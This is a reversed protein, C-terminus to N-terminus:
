QARWIPDFGAADLYEARVRMWGQQWVLDSEQHKDDGANYAQWATNLVAQRRVLQTQHREMSDTWIGLSQFYQIAGRHYPVLWQLQQRQMQWGISGPDANKYQPYGEDIAQTLAAVLRTEQKALTTLIPYPYTGGEHPNADSIAAGRTAMNPQLYPAVKRVRQWCAGDDHPLTLWRIGQPSAELRRTPGSVTTAYATDIQGAIMANWMAVYGPLEVRVVDKWTLDGCALIAETSVNLAPAGLVYPVRKHRLDSIKQIDGEGAVAIGQNSLGLSMMVVRLPKPGWRRGAFQFVGEQAFYTSVGNASFQVRNVLLPLLRSVDNKGPIVRLTVRHNDKLMKAIGVAQNYGTTGLNYASWAMARPLKLEM